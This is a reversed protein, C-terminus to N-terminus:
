HVLLESASTRLSREVMGGFVQEISKM